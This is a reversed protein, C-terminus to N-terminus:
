QDEGTLTLEQGPERTQKPPRMSTAADLTSAVDWAAALTPEEHLTQVMNRLRENPIELRLTVTILATLGRWGPLLFLGCMLFLSIV